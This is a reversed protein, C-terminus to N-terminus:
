HSLQRVYTRVQQAQALGTIVTEIPPRADGPDIVEAGAAPAVVAQGPHIVIPANPSAPPGFSFSGSCGTVGLTVGLLIVLTAGARSM